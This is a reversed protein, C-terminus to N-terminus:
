KNGKTLLRIQRKQDKRTLPMLPLAFEPDPLRFGADYLARHYGLFAEAERPTMGGPPIRVYACQTEHLQHRVADARHEYAVGDYGGDSLRIALWQGILDAVGALTVIDACRRAPDSFQPLAQTM